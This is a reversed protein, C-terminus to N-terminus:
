APQDGGEAEELILRARREAEHAPWGRLLYRLRLSAFPDAPVDEEEYAEPDIRGRDDRPHFLVREVYYRRL